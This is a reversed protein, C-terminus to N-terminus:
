SPQKMPITFVPVPAHKVVKDAVSGFQFGAQRGHSAMVVVDIKEKKLVKLIEGAPDGKAIHKIYLPCGQLENQCIDNLRNEAEKGEWDELKALQTRDFDGYWAGFHGLDKVVYLLHIEAQYKESLSSVYPLAQAANESLDTPWLIREIKM